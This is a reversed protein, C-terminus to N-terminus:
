MTLPRLSPLLVGKIFPSQSLAGTDRPPQPTSTFSGVDDSAQAITPACRHELAAPFLFYFLSFHFPAPRLVTLQLCLTM